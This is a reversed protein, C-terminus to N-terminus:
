RMTAYRYPVLTICSKGRTHYTHTFFMHVFYLSLNTFKNESAAAGEGDARAYQMYNMAHM